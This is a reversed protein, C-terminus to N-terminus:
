RAFFSKISKQRPAPSSTSSRRKIGGQQSAQRTDHSKQSPSEHQSQEARQQTVEDSTDEVKVLMSAEAVEAATIEESLHQDGLAEKTDREGKMNSNSLGAFGKKSENHSPTSVHNEYEDQENEERKEKIRARDTDNEPKPAVAKTSSVKQFFKAICSTGKTAIRDAPTCAEPSEFSPMSMKKEVPWWSLVESNFPKLLHKVCDYKQSSLWRSVADDNPLVAPMRDHLWSIRDSAEVTIITCSGVIGGPTQSGDSWYTFLGALMMAESDSGDGCHVYYPQKVAKGASFEKSWEYFGNCLVVCRYSHLLPKFTPKSELEEGRANFSKFCDSEQTRGLGWRLPMLERSSGTADSPVVVPLSHGPSCNYKAPTYSEPTNRNWSHANAAALAKERGFSCRARGCM